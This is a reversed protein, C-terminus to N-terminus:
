LSHTTYLRTLSHTTYLRTLTLRIRGQLSYTYLKYYLGKLSYTYLKYYLGKLTCSYRVVEQTVHHCINM